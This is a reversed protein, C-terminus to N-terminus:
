SKAGLAWLMAELKIKSEQYEREPDSGRVIGCGAFLSAENGRVLASRLAVAFEGNGDADLWGLPGAYWGRSFSEHERILCLARDRPLGGTAPTPHLREVLDLIHVGDAATAEIPTHLHQVNAMRRLGPTEAARVEACVSSLAETLARAVIAHERREKDDALLAQGLADDEEESAGRRASGALCDTRVTEGDLRVLTEPTAGLFCADGRRVAFITCGPYRERLREIVVEVVFPHEARIDLRRALVVKEAEGEAISDTLSRVADLWDERGTDL